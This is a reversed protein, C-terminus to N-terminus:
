PSPACRMAFDLPPLPPLGPPPPWRRSADRLERWALGELKMGERQEILAAIAGRVQGDEARDAPVLRAVLVGRKCILVRGGQAVEDLLASLHTKAEAFGVTREM